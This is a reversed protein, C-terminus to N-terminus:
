ETGRRKEATHGGRRARETAYGRRLSHGTFREEICAKAAMDRVRARHRVVEVLDDTLPPHERRHSPRTRRQEGM